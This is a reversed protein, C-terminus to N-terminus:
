AGAERGHSIAPRPAPVRPGPCRRRRVPGRAEGRRRHRAAPLGGPRHRRPRPPRHSRPRRRAAAAAALHAPHPDADLLRGQPPSPRPRAPNSRRIANADACHPNTNCVKFTLGTPSPRDRGPYGNSGPPAPETAEHLPDGVDTQARRRDQVPPRDCGTQLRRVAWGRISPMCDVGRMVKQGRSCSLHM